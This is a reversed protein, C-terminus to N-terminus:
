AVYSEWQSSAFSQSARIEDKNRKRSGFDFDKFEHREGKKEFDLIIIDYQIVKKLKIM